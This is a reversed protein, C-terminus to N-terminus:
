LCEHIFRRTTARTGDPISDRLTLGPYQVTIHSVLLRKLEIKIEARVIVEGVEKGEAEM